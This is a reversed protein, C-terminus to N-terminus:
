YIPLIINETNKQTLCRKMLKNAMKIEETFQRNRIAEQKKWQINIKEMNGQLSRYIRM